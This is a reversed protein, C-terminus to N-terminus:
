ARARRAREFQDDFRRPLPLVRHRDGLGLASAQRMTNFGAATVVRDALPFLPWVPYTDITALGDVATPAAVVLSADLDEADAMDRAFAVIELVEERTGAHAVLWRPRPTAELASAAFLDATAPPDHLVLDAVATSLSQVTALHEPQLREVVYTQDFHLPDPAMLRAYRTWRLSRALHVIRVDSRVVAAHLEGFLGSPFADIWLEDPQVTDLASALWDGLQWPDPTADLPAAPSLVTWAQVVRRDGAFSSAALVTVDDDARGLTHLAARVRTLHGLGGGTAYVAIM